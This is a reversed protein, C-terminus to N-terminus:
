RYCQGLGGCLFLTKVIRILIVYYCLAKHMYMEGGIMILENIKKVTKLLLSSLLIIEREYLLFQPLSSM